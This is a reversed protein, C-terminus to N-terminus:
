RPLADLFKAPTTVFRQMKEPTSTLWLKGRFMAAYQLKGEVVQGEDALTVPCAGDKTPWYKSPNTKFEQMRVSSSFYLVKGRYKVSFQPKGAILSRTEFVSPLCLGAFSPKVPQTASVQPRTQSVPRTAPSTPQQQMMPPQMATMVPSQTAAPKHQALIAQLKPMLQKATKFGIERHLIIMEPSVVLLSPFGEVQLHKVLDKHKDGDVLVPVFNQNVLNAVAQDGFTVQEMKRCPGCWTATFKMLVLRQQANASKLSSEIDESWRVEAQAPSVGAFLVLGFAMALLRSSSVAQLTSMLFSEEDIFIPVLAM